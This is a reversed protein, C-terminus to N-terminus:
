SAYYKSYKGYGYYSSLSMDFKNLVVGIIKEKGMIEVVDSVMKRPTKGYEVVLIIGDVQRSLAYTEATMKPPPTDIVIYRDSYREKVEELLKSMQQSSLLEVPNFPPKGGPLISLRDVNTKLLLSSLSTGNAIHESLGPVDGLGFQKHISPRRLDCDIILVHKQLNQAISIALNATVFSKGEDPVASTVILSRIPEGSPPFLLKTMLMKFQESEFSHPKLLVVLNRDVNISDCLIETGDFSTVNRQRGGEEDNAHAKNSLSTAQMNNKLSTTKDSFVEQSEVQLNLVPNLTEKAVVSTRNKKKSKQLATLIKGL